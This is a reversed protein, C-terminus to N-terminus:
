RRTADRGAAVEGNDLPEFRLATIYPKKFEPMFGRQGNVGIQRGILGALNVGPAASVFAVVEGDGNLLAYPPANPRHSEVKALKGKADFRAPAEVAALGVPPHSDVAAGAQFNKRDTDTQINGITVARRQIDEFRALKDLMLHAKGREVATKAHNLAAQARRDLDDFKWVTPEEIVMASLAMDISDLEDHLSDSTTGADPASDSGTSTRHMTHRDGHRDIPHTTHEDDDPEGPRDLDAPM